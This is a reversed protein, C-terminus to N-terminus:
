LQLWPDYFLYRILVMETTPSILSNEGIKYPLQQQTWHWGGEGVGGRLIFCALKILGRGGVDFGTTM